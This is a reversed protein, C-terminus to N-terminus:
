AHKEEKQEDQEAEEEDNESTDHALHVVNIGLMGHVVDLHPSRAYAWVVECLPGVPLVAGLGPLMHTEREQQLYALVRPAVDACVQLRPVAMVAPQLHGHFCLYLTAILQAKEDPLDTVLRTLTTAPGPELALAGHCLLLSVVEAHGHKSAIMLATTGSHAAYNVNAHGEVLLTRVVEAHGKQAAKM